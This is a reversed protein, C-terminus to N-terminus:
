GAADRVRDVLRRLAADAIPEVAEVTHSRGEDDVTIACIRYDAAGPPLSSVRAPLNFFDAAEILQALEDAVAAPAADTDLVRPASLGPFAAIGGQIRISIRV